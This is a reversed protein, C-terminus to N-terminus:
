EFYVRKGCRENEKEYISCDMNCVVDTLQSGTAYAPIIVMLAATYLVGSDIVVRRFAVLVSPRVGVRFHSSERQVKWLKFALLGTSIVNATLSAMFFSTVWGRIHMLEHRSEDRIMSVTTITGIVTTLVGVWLVWAIVAVWPRAKWVVFARYAVIADALLTLLLFTYLRMPEPGRRIKVFLSKPDIEQHSPDRLHLVLGRIDEVLDLVVTMTCMAFLAFALIVNRINLRPREERPSMKSAQKLWLPQLLERLTLAFLPLSIGYFLWGVAEAVLNSINRSIEDRGSM